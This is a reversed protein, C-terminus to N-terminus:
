KQGGNEATTKLGTQKIKEMGGEVHKVGKIGSEILQQALPKGFDVTKGGAAADALEGYVIVTTAGKDLAAKKVKAIDEDSAGFLASYPVNIANVVHEAKFADAPRADVYLVKADDVARLDDSSAAQSETESDKCPAFIDYPIDTVLPIGDSRVANTVVAIAASGATIAISLLLMRIIMKGM